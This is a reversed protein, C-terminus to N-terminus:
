IKKKFMTSVTLKKKIEDTRRDRKTTYTMCVWYQINNIKKIFYIGPNGYQDQTAKKYEDCELIIKNILYFDARTVPIQGRKDEKVRETATIGDHYILIHSVKESDIRLKAGIINFDVISSINLAMHNPMIGFEIEYKVKKDIDYQKFLSDFKNRVEESDSM